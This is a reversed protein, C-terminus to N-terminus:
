REFTAVCEIEPSFLFQDVPVIRVLRYDADILVRADRALTAPAFCMVLSGIGLPDCRALGLFRWRHATTGAPPDPVRSQGSLRAARGLNRIGSSPSCESSCCVTSRIEAM